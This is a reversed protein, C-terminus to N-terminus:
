MLFNQFLCGEQCGGAAGYKRCVVVSSSEHRGLGYGAGLTRGRLGDVQPSPYTGGLDGGAPGTPSGGGGGGTGGLPIFQAM